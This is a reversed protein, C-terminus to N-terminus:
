VKRFEYNVGLLKTAISSKFEWDSFYTDNSIM